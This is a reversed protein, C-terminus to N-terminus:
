STPGGDADVDGIARAIWGFQDGAAEGDWERILKVKEVFPNAFDDATPLIAQYRTDARLSALDADVEAQTMDMRGTTKAKGLWAFAQDKDGTLAYVCGLNNVALPNGPELELSRRYAAIARNYVQSQQLALGLARRARANKPQQATITELM